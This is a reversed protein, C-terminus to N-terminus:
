IRNLFSGLHGTQLGQNLLAKAPNEINRLKTANGIKSVYVEGRPRLFRPVVGLM